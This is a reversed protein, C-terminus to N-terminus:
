NKIMWRMLLKSFNRWSTLPGLQYARVDQLDGEFPSHDPVAFIRDNREKRSKTTQLIELVGIPRCCLVLGPYTGRTM